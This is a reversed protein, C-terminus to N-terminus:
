LVSGQTAKLWQQFSQSVGDERMDKALVADVGGAVEARAVYYMQQLQPKDSARANPLYRKLLAVAQRYEKKFMLWRAQQNMYDPHSRTVQGSELLKAKQRDLGYWLLALNKSSGTAIIPFLSQWNIPIDKLYGMSQLLYATM